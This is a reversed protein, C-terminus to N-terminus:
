PTIEVRVTEIPFSCKSTIKFPQGDVARISMLEKEIVYGESDYCNLYIMCSDKGQLVGTAEFTIYVDNSLWKYDIISLNEVNLSYRFSGDSYYDNIVFPGAPYDLNRVFDDLLTDGTPEPLNNNPMNGVDDSSDTSIVEEKPWTWHYADDYEGYGYGGTVLVTDDSRLAVTHAVGADIMMIDSWSSVDCQGIDDDKQKLSTAVVTGDSHMGITHAGGASIFIIDSWDSVDCQGANYDLDPFDPYYLINTSVVTGDSHLGVTHYSGASITIIDSWDSVKCQGLYYYGTAVVTGDRRLGVTHLLGASVEIIDSWDSVDSQSYNYDSDLINTAVVTGDSRLGVTHTGGASIAMIDSWNDVNCQGFQNDGTAVVTGDVRLGVTYNYGASIEIINTWENVNCQGFSNDGMAVVTNDARLGVIHKEGASITTIWPQTDSVFNPLTPEALSGNLNPPSMEPVPTEISSPSSSSPPPTTNQSGCASVSFAVILSFALAILRQISVRRKVM